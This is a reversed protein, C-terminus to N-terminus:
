ANFFEVFSPNQSAKVDQNCWEMGKAVTYFVHMVLVM